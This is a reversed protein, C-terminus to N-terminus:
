LYYSLRYKLNYVPLRELVLYEPVEPAAISRTICFEIGQKMLLM